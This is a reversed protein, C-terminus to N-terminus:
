RNKTKNETNDEKRETSKRLKNLTQLKNAVEQRM